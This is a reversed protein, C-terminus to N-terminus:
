ESARAFLLGKEVWMEVTLGRVQTKMPSEGAQIDPLLGFRSAEYPVQYLTKVRGADDHLRLQAATVGQISCYRGGLMRDGSSTDFSTQVLRFDLEDFYAQLAAVSAGEAELPRQKLHNLAVEDAIKWAVEPPAPQLLVMALLVLLSAAVVFQIPRRRTRLCSHGGTQLGELERLQAEDLQRAELHEIVSRKLDPKM